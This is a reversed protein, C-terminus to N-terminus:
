RESDSPTSMSVPSGIVSAVRTVASARSSAKGAGRSRRRGPRSARLRAGENAHRKGGSRGRRQADGARCAGPPLALEPGAPRRAATGARARALRRCRPGSDPHSRLALTLGIARQDSRVVLRAEGLQELVDGVGDIAERGALEVREGDVVHDVLVRAARSSHLNQQSAPAPAPTSSM